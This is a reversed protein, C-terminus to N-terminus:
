NITNSAPEQRWFSVVHQANQPSIRGFEESSAILADADMWMGTRLQLITRTTHWAYGLARCLFLIPEPRGDGFLQAVKAIPLCSVLSLGGVVEDHKKSLAIQLLDAECIKGDPYRLLLERTASAYRHEVPLEDALQGAIQDLVSRIEAHMDPRAAAILRKRVNERARVLMRGFVHAPIDARLAISEALVEDSTARSSLTEHGFSSLQAGPNRAVALAVAPDGRRVLVDTVPEAIVRRQAIALLHEQSKVKSVRLLDQDDLNPYMSLVPGAVSIEDYSALRQMIAAPTREIVALREGLEILARTEIKDILCMFVQCFLDIQEDSLVHGALFLSTIQQTIETQRTTTSTSVAEEFEALLSRCSTPSAGM